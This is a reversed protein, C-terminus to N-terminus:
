DQLTGLDFEASAPVTDPWNTRWVERSVDGVHVSKRVFGPAPPWKNPGYLDCSKVIPHDESVEFHLKYGEYRDAASSGDNPSFFGQPIYGRYNKRTIRDRNKDDLPRSFYDIVTQRMRDIKERAIGHGAVYIFGVDRCAREVQDVTDADGAGPSINIVPISQM